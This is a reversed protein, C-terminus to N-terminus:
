YLQERQGFSFVRVDRVRDLGITPFYPPSVSSYMRRDYTFTRGYGSVNNQGRFTGFAGYTNEIIGGLLRVNGRTGFAENRFDEVLVQGTSSMLVGHIAVDKPANLSNDDFHGNGILVDADQVYIGLVNRAELNECDAPTVTGNQNRRPASTCPPDEYKLDSTIRIQSTAALTMQAFHAIAPPASNINSTGRAPGRLREVEGDVYIVGNFQSIPSGDANLAPSWTKPNTNENLEQLVGSEDFRFTRTYGPVWQSQWNCSYRGCVRVQEYYGDVTGRVYQYVANQGTAGNPLQAGSATAAWMELHDLSVGDGFYVGSQKALEQQEYSNTPLPIYEARWDVGGALEPTHGGFSPNPGLNTRLTTDRDFFFAGSTPNTSCREEMQGTSPNLQVTRRNSPCGASTIKHGFWPKNAFRFHENTHVPGDFLTDSTFWIDTNNGTTSIRHHNTFLAYQAFTVRGVTFQYEGQLVVNRRYEGLQAEAIMVFPISYDQNAPRPNGGIFRGSPLKVASPLSEGCSEQTVYVRVSVTGAGEFDTMPADCTLADIERQLLTAVSENGTLDAVVSSTSPGGGMCSGNGFSWCDVTSSRVNVIENLEDRVAGTLLAGGLNAGGRALLLTQVIAADDQSHRMENVTRAFLLTGIGAVVVMTLLALVVAIGQRGRALRM